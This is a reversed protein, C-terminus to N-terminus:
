YNPARVLCSQSFKAWQFILKMVLAFSSMCHWNYYYGTLWSIIPHRSISSSIQRIKCRDARAWHFYRQEELLTPFKVQQARQKMHCKRQQLCYVWYARFAKWRLFFWSYVVRMLPNCFSVTISSAMKLNLLNRECGYYYPWELFSNDLYLLFHNRCFGLLPKLLLFILCRKISEASWSKCSM